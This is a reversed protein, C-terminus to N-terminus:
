RRPEDDSSSENMEPPSALTHTKNDYRGKLEDSRTHEWLPVGVFYGARGIAHAAVPATLLLFGIVAVARTTVGGDGFYVAVGVMMLGAGLVGAKTTAHLRMPLDPMRVLGLAAVVMFAAGSVLFLATLLEIM